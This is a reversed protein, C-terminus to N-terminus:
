RNRPSVAAWLESRCMQTDKILTLGVVGAFAWFAPGFFLTALDALKILAVGVGVM